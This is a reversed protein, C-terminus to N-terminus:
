RVYKTNDFMFRPMTMSSSLVELFYHFRGHFEHRYEVLHPLHWDGSGLIIKGKAQSLLDFLEQHSNTFMPLDSLDSSKCHEESTCYVSVFSNGQTILRIDAHENMRHSLWQFQEEGYVNENLMVKANM